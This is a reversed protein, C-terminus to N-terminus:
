MLVRLLPLSFLVDMPAFSDIRGDFDMTLVVRPLEKLRM